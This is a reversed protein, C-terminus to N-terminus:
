PAQPAPQFPALAEHHERNRQYEESTPDIRSALVDSVAAIRAALESEEPRVGRCSGSRSRGLVGRAKGRYGFVAWSRPFCRHIVARARVWFFFLRACTRM